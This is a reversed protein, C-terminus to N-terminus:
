QCLIVSVSARSEFRVRADFVSSVLSLSAAAMFKPTSNGGSRYLFHPQCVKSAGPLSVKAMLDIETRTFDGLSPDSATIM